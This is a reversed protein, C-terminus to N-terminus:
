IASTYFFGLWSLIVGIIIVLVSISRIKGTSKFWDVMKEYMKPIILITIGKLFMAWGLITVILSIDPQWINHFTIIIFGVATIAAASFYLVSPSLVFDGFVKKYFDPNFLMGIGVALYVIGLLQLIQADAM